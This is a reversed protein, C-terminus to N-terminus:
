LPLRIPLKRDGHTYIFISFQTSTSGDLNRLSRHILSNEQMLKEAVARCAKRYFQKRLEENSKFGIELRYEICYTCDALLLNPQVTKYEKTM